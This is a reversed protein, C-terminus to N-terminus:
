QQPAEMEVPRIPEAAAPQGFMMGFPFGGGM